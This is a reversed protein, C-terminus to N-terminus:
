EVFNVDGMMGAAYHGPMNCAFELDMEKTFTWILEASQGPELLISNPDDHEMTHGDGMEMTMMDHNIQDPELVGHEVMMMMEDQHADHMAATGINFEHVLAGENKVVFRITEGKQIEVSEPEYYNEMMIIEVTRDVQAPDGPKGFEMAAHGHGSDHSGAALAAGGALSLSFIITTAALGRAFSLNNM